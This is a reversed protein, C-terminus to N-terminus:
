AGVMLQRGGSLIAKVMFRVGASSVCYVLTSVIALALAVRGLRALRPDHEAHVRRAATRHRTSPSAPGSLNAM